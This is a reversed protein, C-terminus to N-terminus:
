IKFVKLRKGDESIEFDQRLIIMEIIYDGILSLSNRAGQEKSTIQEIFGNGYELLYYLVNNGLNLQNHLIPCIYKDVQVFEWILASIVGLRTASTSESESFLRLANITWDGGIKHGHELWVKPHLM